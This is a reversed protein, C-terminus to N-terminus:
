RRVKLSNLIRTSSNFYDGVDAPSLAELADRTPTLLEPNAVYARAEAAAKELLEPTWSLTLGSAGAGGAGYHACQGDEAGARGWGSNQEDFSVVAAVPQM